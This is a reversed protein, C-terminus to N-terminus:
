AASGLASGARELWGEYVDILLLDGNGHRYRDGWLDTQTFAVHYLLRKPLGDGGHARSEPDFFPGSVARITGTKGKIFWPTRHHRRVGAAKVRVADGPAFRGPGASFVVGM